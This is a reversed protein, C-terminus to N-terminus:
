QPRPLLSSSQEWLCCFRVTASTKITACPPPRRCASSRTDGGPRTTTCPTLLTPSIESEMSPKNKWKFKGKYDVVLGQSNLKSAERGSCLVPLQCLRITSSPAWVTEIQAWRVPEFKQLHSFIINKPLVLSSLKEWKWTKKLEVCTDLAIIKWYTDGVTRQRYSKFLKIVPNCKIYGVTRKAVAAVQVSRDM